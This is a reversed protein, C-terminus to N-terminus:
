SSKRELFPKPELQQELVDLRSLIDGWLILMAEIDGRSAAGSDVGLKDLTDVIRGKAGWARNRWDGSM